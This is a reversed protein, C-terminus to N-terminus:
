KLNLQELRIQMAKISVNFIKAIREKDLGYKRVADIILFSPMLLNTAFSNSRREIPGFYLRTGLDNNPANFIYGLEYATSFRKLNNHNTKNIYIQPVDKNWRLESDRKLDTELVEIGIHNAIINPHIPPEYLNLLVLIDDPDGLRDEKIKRWLQM